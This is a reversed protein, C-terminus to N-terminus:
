PTEGDFIMVGSQALAALRVGSQAALDLALATPASVTALAGIGAM